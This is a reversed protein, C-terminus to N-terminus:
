HDVVKWRTRFHCVTVPGAGRRVPDGSVRGDLQRTRFNPADRQIGFPELGDLPEGLATDHPRCCVRVLVCVEVWSGATNSRGPIGPLQCIVVTM